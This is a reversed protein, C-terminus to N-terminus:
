VAAGHLQLPLRLSAITTQGDSTHQMRAQGDYALELRKVITTLGDAGARPGRFPGPNQLAVCLREDEIWARLQIRGAHGAAPGHKVANEALSLFMLPPVPVQETEGSVELEFGFREPDRARHLELLQRVLSLEDGLPWAAAKVGTLITRLMASLQLTAREAVKPDERCWEAIANLTNFLFHPDLHSRLALLQAREAQKELAAARAEANKLSVEWEIDRGLAWSGAWFLPVASYWTISDLFISTKVQLLRPLVIGFSVVYTVDLLAFLLLRPLNRTGAAWVPVLARYSPPGISLFGAFITAALLTGRLGGFRTELIVIPVCVLAIPVARREVALARLTNWWM